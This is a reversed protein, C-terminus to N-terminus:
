QAPCPSGPLCSAPTQSRAAAATSECTRSAAAGAHRAEGLTDDEVPRAGVLEVAPADPKAAVHRLAPEESIIPALPSRSIMQRCASSPSRVSRSEIGIMLPTEYEVSSPALASTASPTACCLSKQTKTPYAPQAGDCSCPSTSRSEHNRADASEPVSSLSSSRWPVSSGGGDSPAGGPSPRSVQSLRIPEMPLASSTARVLPQRDSRISVSHHRTRREGGAPEAEASPPPSPAAASAAADVSSSGTTSPDTSRAPVGGASRKRRRSWNRCLASISHRASTSDSPVHITATSLRGVALRTWNWASPLGHRRIENPPSPRSRPPETRPRSTSEM